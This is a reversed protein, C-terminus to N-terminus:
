SISSTTTQTVRLLTADFADKGEVFSLGVRVAWVARGGLDAVRLKVFDKQTTAVVADTPQSSVWRQLEEVDERTYAHHDPYVRFDRVDVGLDNLTQRFAAPNGIGCFAAVPKGRLEELGATRGDVGILERPEHITVSIPVDVFRKIRAQIARCEDASVRDARTIM